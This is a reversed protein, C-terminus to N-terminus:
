GAIDHLKQKRSLICINVQCFSPKTKCYLPVEVEAVDVARDGHIADDYMAGERNGITGLVM